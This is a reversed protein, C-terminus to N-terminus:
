KRSTIEANIQQLKELLIPDTIVPTQINVVTVFRGKRQSHPNSFGTGNSAYETGSNIGARIELEMEQGTITKVKKRCGIIAEIPNINVTTFLDDNERRFDPDPLVVITVNLNGRPAQTISDDGLGQYRITEGHAIGPPVNIVVTQTRGSPLQYNAELQKGVYSDHLTVQCHINLDRNRQVRRGFMDGFPHNRQGFPDFGGGFIDGFDPMGGSHFRVQPGGMRMQDYEAKKNADSLTDYAVSIDKFRAQDGGKDPHHKNALSRYAKKIQDPTANQEVGLTQYYDKM